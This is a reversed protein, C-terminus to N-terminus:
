TKGYSPAYSRTSSVVPLSWTSRPLSGHAVGTRMSTKGVPRKQSPVRLGWTEQGVDGSLLTMLLM